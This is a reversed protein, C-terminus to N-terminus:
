LFEVWVGDADVDFIRGAVSRTNTGHTKAVTQDDVIYCDAGIDSRAILDGASSNGFAFIGVAIDASVAGASGGSNDVDREYVGIGRLTTATAGPTTRGNADRTAIAGAFCKVSAAVALTRRDGSRRKTNRGQTLAAM